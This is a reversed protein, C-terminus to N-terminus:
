DDERRELRAWLTDKWIVFFLCSAVLAGLNWKISKKLLDWRKKSRVAEIEKRLDKETNNLELIIQEKIEQANIKDPLKGQYSQKQLIAQIEASSNAATMKNRFKDIQEVKAVLERNIVANNTLEIRVTNNIGLPVMLLFFIALILSFYSLWRLLLNEIPARYNREGYYIFAIGLLPVPIREIFAGMTQLEWVSNMLQLPLIISIFDIFTLGLLGYGVLRILSFTFFEQNPSQM